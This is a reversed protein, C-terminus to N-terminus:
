PRERRALRELIQQDVPGIALSASTRPLGANIDLAAELQTPQGEILRTAGSTLLAWSALVTATLGFLQAIDHPLPPEDPPVVRQETSADAPTGLRLTTAIRTSALPGFEQLATRAQHREWGDLVVDNRVAVRNDAWWALWIGEPIRGWHCAILPVGAPNYGVGDAWRLVGVEAPPEARPTLARYADPTTNAPTHDVMRSGLTVAAATVEEDFGYLTAAAFRAAEDVALARPQCDAPLRLICPPANLSGCLNQEGAFLAEGYKVLCRHTAHRLGFLARVRKAPDPVAFPDAALFDPSSM